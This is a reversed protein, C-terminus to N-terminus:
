SVGKLGNVLNRTIEVDADEDDHSYLRRPLM